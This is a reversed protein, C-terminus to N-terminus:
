RSARRQCWAGAIACNARTSNTTAALTLGLILSKTRSLRPKNCSRRALMYPVARTIMRPHRPWCPGTRGKLMRDESPQRPLV